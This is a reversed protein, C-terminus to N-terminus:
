LRSVYNIGIQIADSLSRRERFAVEFGRVVAAAREEPTGHHEPDNADYDGAAYADTAFVAAPYDPKQLKRAGAYFGALYDAHLESRKVTRRGADLRRILGLKFQLIHAYEHACVGTVVVDPHEPQSMLSLFFRKGFLVTGDARSMRRVTTAYANEGDFDDYYGFGPLVGFTDTLRSLTHALAYDFDRNGTNAIIPEKGTIYLQLASATALFPEAEDPSLVCGFGHRGRRGQAACPCSAVGWIITLLGGLAVDRRTPV